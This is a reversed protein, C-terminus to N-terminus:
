DSLRDRLYDAPYVATMGPTDIRFQYPPTKPSYTKEVRPEGELPDNLAALVEHGGAHTMVVWIAEEPECAAMKDYDAPVARRVDNNIREVEVTVVIEGAADLGALDLRRNEDLDYYPQVRVVASDPDAVYNQELHRRAVEVALVHQSSEELDGKGHGYDVGERYSEGIAKRGDVTVTFLRHPHDTDHTLLNADILDQVADSAIGVYEQLRIMSDHLLDYEPADYRLQQANYVAQLFMLQRDSHPSAAREAAALKLNLACIPVDDPDTDALSSCCEIARVMGMSSPDYRNGCERCRLAHLGRDYAVTPPMRKTYPLASDVRVGESASDPADLAPEDVPDSTTSAQGLALGAEALTREQVSVLTEDVSWREKQRRKTGAPHGLPPPLSAVTFPRPEALGFGAPLKVLWQGRRLARLRNGVETADMDDTALRRALDRDNPVNGTVVTSVNNLIEDYVDRERRLQGPFQMALTVSCGFGRAQALLEKLLDSIAVSAAEEIYLNVLPREDADSRAARRRLATWLNSLVVLTLVRQAQPRLSGTDLIIVVNEDLYDALDFHSDGEGPVHNFIRALRQDVPIKEIRNAVGQMIEDFSRAKNAVVGALLQELSADSVAPATQREHLQRVATELDSHAYADSGSVPDYLAKVLYRIIDPSRVAREFREVGMVQGLIELYHDVSDEVATTRPVGAALQDRIDFFSFAPLTQSCDFYLVNELHGYRAFHARLYDTAMGDGKPDILISAGDTARHNELMATTLATSKGSGTKGFWAVHMPQLEPPLVVPEPHVTGDTTLPKGLALGAGRYRDLVTQPPQPVSRREGPTADVSRTGDATLAAGDLLCFSGLEHVDVVLGPSEPRRWPMKSLRGYKPQYLTRDRVDQLVKEAASGTRVRGTVEYCTHSVHSLADALERALADAPEQRRKGAVVLRANVDFSRRSDRSALEELREEDDQTLLVEDPAGFLATTLQDSVHDHQNEISEVRAARQGSWDARPRLLIQYVMPLPSEAMAEVIGALPVRATADTLFSEFKTLRTQWDKPHSVRGCYEVAALARSDQVVRDPAWQQSSFEYGDPFLSRLIRRTADLAQTDVGVYYTTEEGDSVLLAELTPSPSGRFRDLFSEKQSELRVQHLRRFQAVVTEADLAEATPQIRVYSRSDDATVPLSDTDPPTRPHSM